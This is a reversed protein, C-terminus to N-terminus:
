RFGSYNPSRFIIDFPVTIVYIIRFVRKGFMKLESTTRAQSLTSICRLRCGNFTKKSKSWPTIYTSGLKIEVTMIPVTIAAVPTGLVPAPRLTGLSRVILDVLDFPTSM